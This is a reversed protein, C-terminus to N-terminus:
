LKPEHLSFTGVKKITQLSILVNPTANVIHVQQNQMSCAQSAYLIAGLGSSDIFKVKEFNIVITKGKGQVREPIKRMFEQSDAFLLEGILVLEVGDKMPKSEIRIDKM